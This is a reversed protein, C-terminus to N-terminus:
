RSRHDLVSGSERLSALSSPEKTRGGPPGDSHKDLNLAARPARDVAMIAVTPEGDFRFRSRARELGQLSLEGRKPVAEKPARDSRHKSLEM